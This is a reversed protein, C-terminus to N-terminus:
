LTLDRDTFGATLVNTPIHTSDQYHHATVAIPNESSSLRHPYATPGLAPEGRVGGYFNFATREGAPLHHPAGLEMFLDHPHQGNIVPIGNATEGTQLAISLAETHDNCTRLEAHLSSAARRPWTIAVGHAQVLEARFTQRPRTTGISRHVLIRCRAADPELTWLPRSAHELAVCQPSPQYRVHIM